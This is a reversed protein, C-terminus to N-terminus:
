NNTPTNIDTNCFVCLNVTVAILAKTISSSTIIDNSMGVKPNTTAM